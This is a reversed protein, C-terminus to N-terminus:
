PATNLLLALTKDTYEEINALIERAQRYKLVAVARLSGPRLKCRQTQIVTIKRKTIRYKVHPKRYKPRKSECVKIIAAKVLERDFLKFDINYSKM